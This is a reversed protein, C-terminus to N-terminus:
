YLISLQLVIVCVNAVVCQNLIHTKNFIMTTAGKTQGKEKQAARCNMGAYSEPDDLCM